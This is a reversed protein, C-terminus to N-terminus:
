ESSPLRSQGTKERKEALDEAVQEAKLQSESKKTATIGTKFKRCQIIQKEAKDSLGHDSYQKVKTECRQLEGGAFSTEVRAVLFLIM